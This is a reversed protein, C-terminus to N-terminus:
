EHRLAEIEDRLRANEAQIADLRSTAEDSAQRLAVSENRFQNIRATAFVMVGSCVAVSIAPILLRKM